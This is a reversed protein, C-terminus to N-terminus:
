KLSIKQGVAITNDILQNLEKLKPVSVNYKKSLRYLTEGKEVIHSDKNNISTKSDKSIIIEQGISLASDSKNNLDYIESVSTNYLRAIQYLTEGKEVIHIKGSTSTVVEKELSEVTKGKPNILKIEGTELNMLADKGDLSVLEFGEPVSIKQSYVEFSVLIFAFFFIYKFM